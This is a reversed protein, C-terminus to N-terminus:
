AYISCWHQQVRNSSTPWVLHKYVVGLLIRHSSSQIHGIRWSETVVAPVFFFSDEAKKTQNRKKGAKQENQIATSEFRHDLPTGTQQQRSCLRKSTLVRPSRIFYTRPWVWAFTLTGCPGQSQCQQSLPFAIQSSSALRKGPGDNNGKKNINYVIRPGLM